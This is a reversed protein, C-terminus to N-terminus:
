ARKGDVKRDYFNLREMLRAYLRRLQDDNPQEDFPTREISDAVTRWYEKYANLFSEFGERIVTSYRSRDSMVCDAFEVLFHHPKYIELWKEVRSDVIAQFAAARGASGYAFAERAELIEEVHEVELKLFKVHERDESDFLCLYGDIVEVNHDRHNELLSNIISM